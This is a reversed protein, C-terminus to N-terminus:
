KVLILQKVLVSGNGSLRTLYAGAPLSGNNANVSVQQRGNLVSWDKERIRRGNMDFIELRAQPISSSTEVFLNGDEVVTPYIRANQATHFDVSLINSYTITGDLDVMLLRYYVTGNGSFLDTYSYEQSTSSSNAATAPTTHIDNFSIGDTSRQIIYHDFNIAQNAKWKLLSQDPVNPVV